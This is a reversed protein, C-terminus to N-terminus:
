PENGEISKLYEDVYAIREEQRRLAESLREARTRFLDEKALDFKGMLRAMADMHSELDGNTHIHDVTAGAEVLVRAVLITRHCDLPEGETCMIAIRERSAGERLREIGSAFGATAALRAYQVKGDLYCDMDTSRAGLEKGLFAYRIESRALGRELSRQNFHPTFRSFPASRVDAVATVGHARLLSVFTEGEHTSHGVTLFRQGSMM